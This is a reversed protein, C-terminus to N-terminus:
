FLLQAQLRFLSDDSSKANLGPKTTALGGQRHIDTYDTQIKLNHSNIYWSVAGTTETWHDNEVNRNPDMYGYRAALELTKPIVFYGSQVYFGQGRQELQSASSRAYGLFYEGQFSFGRWKFAADAGFMDFAIKDSSTLAFKTAGSAAQGLSFWGGPTSTSSSYPKTFYSNNSELASSAPTTPTAATFTDKLTDRWYSGAFSLLPKESYEVDSESYKMNGLPNYVLRASFANDNTARFTDQGVGGYVGVTYRVLGALIDGNLSLGTDYGPVFANTINSVDVFQLKSSSTIFGRGFQVKDQGFRLQAEDIIRYQLYTEELVGGNNSAVANNQLNAFNINMLYTLDKTYANGSLLLKARKLSFKSYDQATGGNAGSDLDLFDYRLQLQLGITLKYNGDDSMLSYGQGFTYNFPKSNTVEKYDEESIVGKEKLVDELSKASASQAALAIALLGIAAIKKKM